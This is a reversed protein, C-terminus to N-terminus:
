GVPQHAKWRQRLLQMAAKGREAHAPDNMSTYTPPDCAARTSEFCHKYGGDILYMEPYLLEPYTAAHLCRDRRRIHRMMDPARKASFECYFILATTTSQELSPAFFHQEIDDPSPLSTAGRLRGGEYEYTFRCDFFRAGQLSAPLVGQLVELATTPSIVHLDPHQSSRITPLMPEYTTFPLGHLVPASNCRAFKPHLPSAQEDSNFLVLRRPTKRAPGHENEIELDSGRKLATPTEPSFLARKSSRPVRRRRPSTVLGTPDSSKRALM